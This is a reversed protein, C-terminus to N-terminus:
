HLILNRLNLLMDNSGWEDTTTHSLVPNSSSSGNDEHESISKNDPEYQLCQNSISESAAQMSNSQLFPTLDLHSSSWYAISNMMMGRMSDGSVNYDFIHPSSPDCSAPSQQNQEPLHYWTKELRAPMAASILSLSLFTMM